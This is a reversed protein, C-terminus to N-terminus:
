QVDKNHNFYKFLSTKAKSYTPYFPTCIGILGLITSAPLSFKPTLKLMKRAYARARVLDNRILYIRLLNPYFYYQLNYKICDDYKYHFYQNMRMCIQVGGKDFVDIEAQTGPKVNSISGPNKRYVGMNESFYRLKGKSACLVQIVWDGGALSKLEKPFAGFVHNRFVLSCTAGGSGYKLLDEITSTKRQRAGLWELKHNEKEYLVNVNHSSIAFTPHTELFDVQRQLKYPDTWYDDGECLAIYEGKAKAIAIPTIKRGKSYQNTKQLIPVFIQPYKKQYSRIIKATNDISADDHIIIEYPFTTKQMLFSDIAQALYREHNYAICCISLKM